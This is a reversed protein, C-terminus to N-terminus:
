LQFVSVRQNKEDAVYLRGKWIHIERPNNFQGDGDGREGFSELFTGDEERFMCICHGNTGNCSVYVLGEWVAVSVPGDPSQDPHAARYAFVSGNRFTYSPQQLLSPHAEEAEEAEKKKKNRDTFKLERVFHLKIPGDRPGWKSGRPPNFPTQQYQFVSVRDAIDPIYVYNNEVFTVSQPFFLGGPTQGREGVIQKKMNQFNLEIFTVLHSPPRAVCLFNKDHTISLGGPDQFSQSFVYEGTELDFVAIRHNHTDSVYVFGDRDHVCCAIPSSM